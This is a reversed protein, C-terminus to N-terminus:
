IELNATNTDKLTTKIERIISKRHYFINITKYFVNINRLYLSFEYCLKKKIRAKIKVFNM